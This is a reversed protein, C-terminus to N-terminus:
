LIGWGGSLINLPSLGGFGRGGSGLGINIIFTYQLRRISEDPDTSYYLSCFNWLESRLTNTNLPQRIHRESLTERQCTANNILM